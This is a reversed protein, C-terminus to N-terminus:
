LKEEGTIARLKGALELWLKAAGFTYFPFKLKDVHNDAVHIENGNKDETKIIFGCHVTKLDKEIYVPTKNTINKM